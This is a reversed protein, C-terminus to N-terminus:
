IHVYSFCLHLCDSFTCFFVFIFTKISVVCWHKCAFLLFWGSCWFILIINNVSGFCIKLVLYINHVFGPSGLSAFVTVWVQEFHHVPLLYFRCCVFCALTLTKGWFFLCSTLLIYFLFTAVVANCMYCCFHFCPVSLDILFQALCMWLVGCFVANWVFVFYHWVWRGIERYFFLLLACSLFCVGLSFMSLSRVCFCFM